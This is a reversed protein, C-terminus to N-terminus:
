KASVFERLRTFTLLAPLTSLTFVKGHTALLMDRMDQVRVGFGRGDIRAVVEFSSKGERLRRDRMEALAKLRAVKDRATGDDNTIKAEIIVAPAFESPIFFDPAQEFGPVREARGTRRFTVGHRVLVDTIASEMIDGVLESVSDGHSAFPRGLYREYLLVAFPVHRNAVHQLSVLGEDTDAKRLRHVTDEAGAPAGLQISRVAVEILAEARLALKRSSPRSVVKEFLDRRHRVDVDLKRATNQDVDSGLESRALEAWEPPSLGLITRLVVFALADARLAATVTAVTTDAFAGTCRKLTEYADQFDRYEIFHPGKPLVLFQSQLDNFTAQVM